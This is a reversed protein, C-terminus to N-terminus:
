RCQSSRRSLLDGHDALPGPTRFGSIANPPTTSLRRCSIRSTAPKQRIWVIPRFNDLGFGISPNRPRRRRAFASILKVPARLSHNAARCCACPWIHSAPCSAPSIFMMRWSFIAVSRMLFRLRGNQSSQMEFSSDARISSTRRSVSFIFVQGLKTGPSVTQM